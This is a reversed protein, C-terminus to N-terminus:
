LMRLMQFFMITLRLGELPLVSYSGEVLPINLMQGEDGITQVTRCENGRFVYVTVPYSVTSEDAVSGGARTRVQLVSNAMQGSGVDEIDDVLGKECATLLVAALPWFLIKRNM